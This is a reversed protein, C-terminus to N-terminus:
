QSNHAFQQWIQRFSYQFICYRYLINQCFLINHRGIMGLKKWLQYRFVCVCIYIKEAKFWILSHCNSSRMLVPLRFSSIVFLRFLVVRFSSIVFLRFLAVCFVFYRFSSILGRSFIFYRWAFLRFLAVRFSSLNVTKFIRRKTHKKGDKRTPIEFKRTASKTVEDKRTADNPRKTKKCPTKERLMIEPRFPLFVFHCVGAVM